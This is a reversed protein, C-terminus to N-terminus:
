FLGWYYKGLLYLVGIAAAFLLTAILWGIQSVGDGHAANHKEAKKIFFRVDDEKHRVARRMEGNQRKVARKDAGTYRKKHLLYENKEITSLMTTRENMLNFIKEKLEDPARMRAVRKATNLQSRYSAKAARLAVKAEKTSAVEDSDLVYLRMLSEDIREREKLAYDLRGLISEILAANKVRKDANGEYRDLAATYYRTSDARERKLARSLKSMRESIQRRMKRDTREKKLVDISFAYGLMKHEAKMSAIEYLMRAEVLGVAKDISDVPLYLDVVDNDAFGRKKKRRDQGKQEQEAIFGEYHEEDHPYDDSVAVPHLEDSIPEHEDHEYHATYCDTDGSLHMVDYAADPATIDVEALAPHSIKSQPEFPLPPAYTINDDASEDAVAALYIEETQQPAVPEVSVPLVVAPPAESKEHPTTLPIRYVAGPITLLRAETATVSVADSNDSPAAANEEVQNVNCDLRNIDKDLEHM